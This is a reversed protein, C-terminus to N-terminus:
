NSRKQAAPVAHRVKKPRKGTVQRYTAADAQQRATTAALESKQRNIRSQVIYCDTRDPGAPIAKCNGQAMAVDPPGLFVALVIATLVGLFM